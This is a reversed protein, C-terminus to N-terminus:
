VFYEKTKRRTLYFIVWIFYIYPIILIITYPGTLALIIIISLIVYNKRAKKQKKLISIGLPIFIIGLALAISLMITQIQAPTTKVPYFQPFLIFFLFPIPTFFSIYSIILIGLPKKDM